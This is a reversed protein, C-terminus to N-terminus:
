IANTFNDLAIEVTDILEIICFFKYSNKSRGSERVNENIINQNGHFRQESTKHTFTM